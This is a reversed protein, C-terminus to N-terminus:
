YNKVLKSNFARVHLSLRFRSIGIVREKEECSKKREM